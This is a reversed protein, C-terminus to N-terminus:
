WVERVRLLIAGEGLQVSGVRGHQTAESSPGERIAPILGLRRRASMGHGGAVRRRRAHGAARASSTNRLRARAARRLILGRWAIAAVRQVLLNSDSATTVLPGVRVTLGVGWPLHIQLGYM